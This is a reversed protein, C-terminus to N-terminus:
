FRNVTCFNNGKLIIRCVTMVTAVSKVVSGGYSVYDVDDIIYFGSVLM